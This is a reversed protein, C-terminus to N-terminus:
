IDDEKEVTTNTWHIVQCELTDAMVLTTINEYDFYSIPIDTCTMQAVSM